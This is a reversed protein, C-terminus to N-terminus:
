YYLICLHMVLELLIRTNGVRIAGHEDTMLPVSMTPSDPIM